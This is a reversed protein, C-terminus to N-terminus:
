LHRLRGANPPPAGRLERVLARVDGRALLRLDLAPSGPPYSNVADRTWSEVPELTWQETPIRIRKGNEDKPLLTPTGRPMWLVILEPSEEIIRCAQARWVRGRHVDRWVADTREKGGIASEGSRETTTVSRFSAPTARPARGACRIPGRRCLRELQDEDVVARGVPGPGLELPQVRGVRADVGDAELPVEALVRRHVGPERARAAVDDHRHVAVELVLGLVDRPEDGRDLGAGVDRAAPARGAAVGPPARQGRSQDVAHEAAERADVIESKPQAKM